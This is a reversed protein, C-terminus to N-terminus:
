NEFTTELLNIVKHIIPLRNNTFEVMDETGTDVCVMFSVTNPTIGMNAEYAYRSGVNSQITALLQKPELNAKVFEHQEANQVRFKRIIIAM